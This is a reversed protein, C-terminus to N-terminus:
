KYMVVVNCDVGGAKIPGFYVLDLPIMVMTVIWILQLAHEM